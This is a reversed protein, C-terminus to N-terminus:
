PTGYGYSQITSKAENSALFNMFSRAAATDKLLVAQQEIPSYLLQPIKWVSGNMVTDPTTIQSRAVFGLEANGTRIFLFTQGINEGRVLRDQIDQWLGRAELVERAAKGYPALRPNAIALYRFRFDDLVAGNADVLDPTASWLVLQGLAYTFRMDAVSRGEIDLRMPREADAALFLAFPAGNVIQAYLKGTSGFSLVVDHEHTKEYRTALERMAGAFNSAVAIRIEDARAHGSLLLVATLFLTHLTRSCPM